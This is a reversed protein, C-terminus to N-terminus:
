LLLVEGRAREEKLRQRLEHANKILSSGRESEPRCCAIGECFSAVYDALDMKVKTKFRFAVQISELFYANFLQDGFFPMILLPKGALMAEQCSNWGGHSLFWGVSPHQLVYHQDVWNTLMAKDSKLLQSELATIQPAFSPSCSSVLDKSGGFTFLLRFNSNLSMEYIITELMKILHTSQPRFMTGFSIYVVSGRSSSALFKEIERASKTKEDELGGSNSDDAGPSGPPTKPPTIPRSVGAETHPYQSLLEAAMKDGKQVFSSFMVPGLIGIKKFPFVVRLYDLERQEVAVHTNILITHSADALKQIEILSPTIPVSLLWDKALAAMETEEVNGMRSGPIFFNGSLRRGLLKEKLAADNRDVEPNSNCYQSWLEEIGGFGGISRPGLLRLIFTCANDFFAVMKIDSSHKRVIEVMGPLMWNVIVSSPAGALCAPLLLSSGQEDYLDRNALLTPFTEGFQERVRTAAQMTLILEPEPGDVPSANSAPASSTKAIKADERDSLDKLVDHASQGTGLLRLREGFRDTSLHDSIALRQLLAIQTKSCIFTITLDPNKNLMAAAYDLMPRAHGVAPWCVMLVHETQVMKWRLFIAPDLTPPSPITTPLLPALAAPPVDVPLDISPSISKVAGLM